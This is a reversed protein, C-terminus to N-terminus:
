EADDLRGVGNREFRMLLERGQAAVVGEKRPVTPRLEALVADEIALARLREAARQATTVAASANDEAACLGAGLFLTAALLPRSLGLRKM